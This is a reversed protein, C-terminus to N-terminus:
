SPLVVPVRTALRITEVSEIRRLAALILKLKETTMVLPDGGSVIVDRIEPHDRLYEFAKRLEPLGRAGGGAGVARSRTCYRCYVACRDVCFILARDPYRRILNPCVEHSVEGLPDVLDGPSTEQELSQPVVQRRIPCALDDPDCLSLYYPTIAIPFGRAEAFQAGTLEETSLRLARALEQSSRVCNRLQWRWDADPSRRLQSIM